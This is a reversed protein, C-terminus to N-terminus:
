RHDVFEIRFVQALLSLVCGRIALDRLQDLGRMLFALAPNGSRAVHFGDIPRMLAYGRQVKPGHAVHLAPEVSLTCGAPIIQM